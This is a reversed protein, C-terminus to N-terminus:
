RGSLAANLKRKRTVLEQAEKAMSRNRDDNDEHWTGLSSQKASLRMLLEEVHRMRLRIVDAWAPQLDELDVASTWLILWDCIVRIDGTAEAGGAGL